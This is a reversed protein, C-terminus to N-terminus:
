IRGDHVSDLELDLLAGVDFLEIREVYPVKDLVTRGLLESHFPYWHSPLTGGASTLMAPSRRMVILARGDETYLTAEDAFTERHPDRTIDAQTTKDVYRWTLGAADIDQENM